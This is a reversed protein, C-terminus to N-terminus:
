KIRGALEPTNWRDLTSQAYPERRVPEDLPATEIRVLEPWRQDFAQRDEAQKRRAADGVAAGGIRGAAIANRPLGHREVFEKEVKDALEERGTARLTKLAHRVHRVDEESFGREDDGEEDEAGRAAAEEEAGKQAGIEHMDSLVEELLRDLVDRKDAPVHRACFHQLRTFATERDPFDEDSFDDRTLRAARRRQSFAGASDQAMPAAFLVRNIAREALAPSMGAPITALVLRDSTYGRPSPAPQVTIKGTMNARRNNTVGRVHAILESVDTM